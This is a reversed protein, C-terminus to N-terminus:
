LHPQEAGAAMTGAHDTAAARPLATLLMRAVWLDQPLVSASELAGDSLWLSVLQWKKVNRLCLSSM